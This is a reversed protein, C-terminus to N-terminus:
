RVSISFRGCVILGSASALIPVKLIGLIVAIASEPTTLSLEIVTFRADNSYISGQDGRVGREWLYRADTWSLEVRAQAGSMLTGISTVSDQFKPGASSLSAGQAYLSKWKGGLWNVFDIEHVGLEVIAGGSANDDFRWPPGGKPDLWVSLSTILWAVVVERNVESRDDSVRYGNSTWDM